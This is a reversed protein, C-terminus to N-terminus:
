ILYLFPRCSYKNFSIKKLDTYGILVCLSKVFHLVHCTELCANVEFNWGIQIQPKIQMKKDYSFYM